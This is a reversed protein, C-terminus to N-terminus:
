ARHWDFFGAKIGPKILHDAQGLLGAPKRKCPKERKRGSSREHIRHRKETDVDAFVTEVQMALVGSAMLNQALLHATALQEAVQRLEGDARHHHLRATTGM